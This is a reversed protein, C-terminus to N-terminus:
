IFLWYNIFLIVEDSRSLKLDTQAHKNKFQQVICNHLAAFTFATSVKKSCICSYTIERRCDKCHSTPLGARYKWLNEDPWTNNSTSIIAQWGRLIFLIKCM